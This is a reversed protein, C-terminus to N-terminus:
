RCFAAISQSTPRQGPRHPMSRIQAAHPRPVHYSMPLKRPGSVDRPYQSFPGANARPRNLFPLVAGM